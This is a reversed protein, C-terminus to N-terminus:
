RKGALREQMATMMDRFEQGGILGSVALREVNRAQARDLDAALEIALKGAAFAERPLTVLSQCFDMAEQELRDPEFIEHVIGISQAQQASVQKNALILWRAWHTGALRVLRSTGGSGPIGGLMIEPLGYRAETSALRFDACLSLELAGGLCPGQHAVVVPKGIAEWEDGLAHLSGTGQRYWQRFDLSSTLAPDPALAGHLDIGASFYRGNARILLVRVSDDSALRRTVEWLGQWMPLDLANLKDPRDLTACLVGDQQQIQLRGESM